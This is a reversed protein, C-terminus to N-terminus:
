SFNLFLFFSLVTKVLEMLKLLVCAAKLPQLRQHAPEAPGAPSLNGSSAPLGAVPVCSVLQPPRPCHGDWGDWCSARWSGLLGHSTWTWGSSWRGRLCSSALSTDLVVLSWRLPFPPCAPSLYPGASLPSESKRTRFLEGSQGKPSWYM